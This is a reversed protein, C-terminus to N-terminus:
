TSTKQVAPIQIKSLLKATKSPLSFYLSFCLVKKKMTNLIGFSGKSVFYIRDFNRGKKLIGQHSRPSFLLRRFPTLRQKGAM